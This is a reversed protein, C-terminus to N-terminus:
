TQAANNVFILCSLEKKLKKKQLHYEKPHDAGRNSITECHRAISLVLDADNIREELKKITKNIVWQANSAKIGDIVAQREEQSPKISDALVKLMEIIEATTTIHEM